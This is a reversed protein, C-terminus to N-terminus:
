YSRKMREILITLYTIYLSTLAHKPFPWAIVRKIWGDIWEDAEYGM